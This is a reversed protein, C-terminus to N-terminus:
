RARAEILLWRGWHALAGRGLRRDLARAPAALPARGLAANWFREPRHPWLYIGREGRPEFGAAAIQARLVDLTECRPLARACYERLHEEEDLFRVRGSLKAELWRSWGVVPVSLLLKGGPRSVRRLEALAAAPEVLHELVEALIVLDFSAGRLPLAEASSCAFLGRVRARARTLRGASLDCGVTREPPAGCRACAELLAGLLVGDGCGVELVARPPEGAALAVTDELRRRPALWRFHAAMDGRTESQREYLWKSDAVPKEIEAERGAV